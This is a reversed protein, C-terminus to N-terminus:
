AAKMAARGAATVRYAGLWINEIYGQEFLSAIIKKGVDSQYVIGNMSMASRIADCEISTM